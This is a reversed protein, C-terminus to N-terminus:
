GCGADFLATLRATAERLWRNAADEEFREHWSMVLDTSMALEPPLGVQQLPVLQCFHDALRRPVTVVLDSGGVAFPATMFHSVRAAVDLEAGLKQVRGEVSDAHSHPSCLVIHRLSLYRDLDLVDGSAPHGVRVLCVAEDTSIVRTCLGPIRTGFQEEIDNGIVLDVYGEQLGAVTSPDIPRADLRLGPAERSILDLMPPLGLVEVADKCAIVFTRCATRPDFVQEGRLARGLESLARRVPSQLQEARPTAVMGGKGPVLLPDEFTERLRRLQHSMASQSLGLRRAAATVSRLELLADLGVLLNLDVQALHVDHM